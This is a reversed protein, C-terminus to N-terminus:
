EGPRYSRPPFRMFHILVSSATPWTSHWSMVCIMGPTLLPGRKRLPCITVSSSMGTSSEIPLSFRNTHSSSGPNTCSFSAASRRAASHPRSFMAHLSVLSPLISSFLSISPTNRTSLSRSKATFLTSSSIIAVRRPPPRTRGPSLSAPVRTMGSTIRSSFSSAASCAAPSAGSSATRGNVSRVAATMVVPLSTAFPRMGSLKVGTTSRFSASKPIRM